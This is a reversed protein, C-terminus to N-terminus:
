LKHYNFMINELSLHLNIKHYIHKKIILISKLIKYGKNKKIFNNKIHLILINAIHNLFININNKSLTLQHIIYLINYISKKYLIKIIKHINYYQIYNYKHSPILFIKQSISTLKYPLLYQHKAYIFIYPTTKLHKNINFILDIMYPTLYYSQKIIIIKVTNIYYNNNLYNYLINTNNNHNTKSHSQIKISKINIHTNSLIHYCNYCKCYNHLTHYYQNCLINICLFYSLTITDQVNDGLLILTKSLKNLKIAKTLFSLIQTQNTINKINTDFLYLM